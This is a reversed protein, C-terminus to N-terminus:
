RMYQELMEFNAPSMMERKGQEIEMMMSTVTDNIPTPVGVERGKRSVYGNIYRTESIRGKLLDQLTSSVWKETGKKGPTSDSKKSQRDVVEDQGERGLDTNIKQVVKKVREETSCNFDDATLGFAPELVYGLAEGVRVTECGLKISLTFYKPNELLENATVGIIPTLCLSATSHILKALKAGWINTSVRTQGVASLLQAVEQVRPTIRGDLEGVVFQATAQDTNRRVLGPEFLQSSLEVVTGIDREAGIIPIIWEDCMGNQASVHVGDSKLYPEILQTMWRTDNAKSALFVIDFQYKLSALECIHIAQVPVKFEEGTRIMIVRLGHAKMAEVHAPWQDILVVDHGANTLDAGICSGNAGVGLVAMKKNVKGLEKRQDRRGSGSDM